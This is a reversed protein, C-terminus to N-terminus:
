GEKKEFKKFELPEGTTEDITLTRIGTAQMANAIAALKSVWPKSDEGVIPAGVAGLKDKTLRDRLERLVNTIIDTGLGSGPSEGFHTRIEIRSERITPLRAPEGKARELAWARLYDRKEDTSVVEVQAKSTAQLETEKKSKIRPHNSFGGNLDKKGITGGDSTLM